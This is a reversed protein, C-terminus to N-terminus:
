VEMKSIRNMIVNGIAMSVGAYILIIRTIGPKLLNEFYGPSITVLILATIFPLLSLLYSTYRAYSTLARIEGFLYIRNRITNTVTDLILTLNGGVQMNISVANVVLFLDDSEMRIALNTLAQNLPLGLEVERKVRRFEESTPEAMERAVVDLSQLFSSGAAVAGRVLTLTDILQDQFQKRRQNIARFLLFGPLIFAMVALAAGGWISGLLLSGIVLFVVSAIFRLLHFETVSIKWNASSLRVQFEESELVGLTVNMRYRFRSLRTVRGSDKSSSARRPAEIYRNIRESVSARGFIIVLIGILFVFGGLLIGGLILWLLTPNASLM